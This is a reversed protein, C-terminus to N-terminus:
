GVVAMAAAGVAIGGAEGLEKMSHGEVVSIGREECLQRLPGTLMPDADRALFVRKAKGSRVARITQKLGAVHQVTKLESLM